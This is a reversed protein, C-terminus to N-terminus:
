LTSLQNKEIWDKLPQKIDESKLLEIGKTSWKTTFDIVDVLTGGGQEIIKRLKNIALTPAEEKSKTIFLYIKKGKLDIQDLFANIAPTPHGAWVQGGLLITDYKELKMQFKKLKSKVRFLAGLVARVYTKQKRAKAEELQEIPFGTIKNLEIAVAETNGLWSYYVIISQSM